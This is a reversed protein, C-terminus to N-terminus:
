QEQYPFRTQKGRFCSRRPGGKWAMLHCVMAVVVAMCVTCARVRSKHQQAEVGFGGRGVQVIVAELRQKGSMIM